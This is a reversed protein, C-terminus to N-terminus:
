KAKDLYRYSFTQGKLHHDTLIEDLVKRLEEKSSAFESKLPTLSYIGGYAEVKYGMQHLSFIEILFTSQTTGSNFKTSMQM